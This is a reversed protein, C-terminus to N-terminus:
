GHAACSADEDAMSKSASSGTSAGGAGCGGEDADLGCGHADSSRPSVSQVVVAATSSGDAGGTVTEGAAAGLGRPM